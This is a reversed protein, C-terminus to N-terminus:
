GGLNQPVPASVVRDIVVAQDGVWATLVDTGSSVLGAAVSTEFAPLWSAVPFRDGPDAEGGHIQLNVVQGDRVNLETVTCIEIAPGRRAADAVLSRIEAVLPATM